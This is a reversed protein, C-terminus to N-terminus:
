LIRPSPVATATVDRGVACIGRAPFHFRPFADVFKFAVVAGAKLAYAPDHRRAGQVGLAEAVASPALM